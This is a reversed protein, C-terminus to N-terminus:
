NVDQAEKVGVIMCDIAHFLKMKTTYGTPLVSCSGTSNTLKVGNYAFELDYNKGPIIKNLYAVQKELMSKSIVNSM